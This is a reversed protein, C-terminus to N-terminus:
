QLAQLFNAMKQIIEDINFAIPETASRIAKNLEDKFNPGWKIIVDSVNNLMAEIKAKVETFDMNPDLKLQTNLENVLRQIETVMIPVPKGAEKFANAVQTSWASVDEAWIKLNSASIDKGSNLAKGLEEIGSIMMESGATARIYPQEDLFITKFEDYSSGVKQFVAQVNTVIVQMSDEITQFSTDIAATATDVSKSMEGLTKAFIPPGTLLNTWLRGSHELLNLFGELPPAADGIAAGVMHMADRAGFANTTYLAIATGAIAVSAGVVGLAVPVLSLAKHFGSTQVTASALGSTLPTVNTASFTTSLTKWANNLLATAKESKGIVQIISTIATVGSLTAAIVQPMIQAAFQAHSENLNQQMFDLKETEVAERERLTTIRQELIEQQEVSLNGNDRGTKLRLETQELTTATRDTRLRQTELALEAATLNDMAADIGFISATFTGVSTAATLLNGQFGSMREVFTQTKTAAQQSSDGIQQIQTGLPSTIGRGIVSQFETFQAGLAKMTTQMATLQRIAETVDVKVGMSVTGESGISM